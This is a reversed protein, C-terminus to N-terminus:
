ACEGHLVSLFDVLKSVATGNWCTSNHSNPSFKESDCVVDSLKNFFGKSSAINRLITSFSFKEPAKTPFWDQLATSSNTSSLVSAQISTNMMEASVGVLAPGCESIMQVCFDHM